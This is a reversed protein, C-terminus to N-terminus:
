KDMVDKSNLEIDRWSIGHALKDFLANEATKHAGVSGKVPAATVTAASSDVPRLTPDVPRLLDEEYCQKSNHQVYSQYAGLVGVKKSAPNRLTHSNSLDMIHLFGDITILVLVPSWMSGYLLSPEEMFCLFGRHLWASELPHTMILVPTCDQKESAPKTPDEDHGTPSIPSSDIVDDMARQLSSAEDSMMDSSNARSLSSHLLYDAYLSFNAREASNEHVRAALEEGLPKEQAAIM